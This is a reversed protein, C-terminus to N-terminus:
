RENKKLVLLNSRVSISLSFFQFRGNNQKNKICELIVNDNVTYLFSIFCRLYNMFKFEFIFNGRRVLCGIAIPKNRPIPRPEDCIVLDYAEEIMTRGYRYDYRRGNDWEVLIVGVSLLTIGEKLTKVM